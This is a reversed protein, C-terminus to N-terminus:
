YGGAHGDKRHDSGAIYGSPTKWILQAGGFAFNVAEAEAIRHGMNVLEAGIRAALEAELGITGDANVIWRPADSATQPDQQYDCIRTVMQVHGQPQMHGGMVGFAMLPSGDRATLFAPIITQYPRKKPAVVNPHEETLVFGHGRNQLSIGTGPVVVGSGFGMYNSQILSVMMGNADATALYVTGGHKPVGFSPESACSMDILKARARLYTEGLLQTPAFEMSAPDAIYRYADAFALKMAEIQLHVSEVSDVPYRALDFERLIGLCILAALGQGNPPIEHLRVNHYDVNILDVWDAQHSAFDDETHVGGLARSHGVMKKALAGRYFSEGKTAAIEELTEAQRLFVWHEGACPARGAITFDRHFDAEAIMESQRQWSAATIPSVMHGNRAYDIAPVFLQAFPLRGFRESLAVWQSVAGPITVTDIGRIPMTTLSPYKDRFYRRSWAAPARGSANLGHLTGNECVISFGDSGIGNSTPEVVTLTIAAAIAADVANGGQQLMTLGAQTALPQSTSVINRAMVPMRQSPYRPTASLLFPTATMKKDTRAALGVDTKWVAL